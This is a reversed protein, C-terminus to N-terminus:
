IEPLMGESIPERERRASRHTEVGGGGGGARGIREHWENTRKGADGLSRKSFRIEPVMGESIPERERRVVM